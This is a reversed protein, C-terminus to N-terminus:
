ALRHVLGTGPELDAQAAGQARPNRRVDPLEAPSLCALSTELRSNVSPLAPRLVFDLSNYAPPGRLLPSTWVTAGSQADVAVVRSPGDSGYRTPLLLNKHSSASPESVLTNARWPLTFSSLVNLRADLRQVRALDAQVATLLVLEAHGDGDTDAIEARRGQWDIPGEVSRATEVYSGSASREFVIVRRWTVAVIDLVGDEDLDGVAVDRGDLLPASRWVLVNAFLDYAEVVGDTGITVLDVRGDGTLDATALAMPFTSNNQNLPTAWETQQTFADYAILPSAYVDAATM